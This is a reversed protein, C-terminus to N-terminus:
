FINRSTARCFALVDETIAIIEDYSNLAAKGRTWRGFSDILVLAPHAKEHVEHLWAAPDEPLQGDWGFVPDDERLGLQRWHESSVGIPDELSAVVVPGQEVERGLFQDGRAVALAYQRALTSKGASKGGAFLMIGGHPTLGDAQWSLEADVDHTIVFMSRLSPLRQTGHDIKPATNGGMEEEAMDAAKKATEPADDEVKETTAEASDREYMRARIERWEADTPDATDPNAKRWRKWDRLELWDAKVRRMEEDMVQGAFAEDADEADPDPAWSTVEILPEWSSGKLSMAEIGEALTAKGNHNETAAVIVVEITEIEDPTFTHASM